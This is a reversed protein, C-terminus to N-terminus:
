LNDSLRDLFSREIKTVGIYNLWLLQYFDDINSNLKSM